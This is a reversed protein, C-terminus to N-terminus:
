TAMRQLDIQIEDRELRAHVRFQASNQFTHIFVVSGRERFERMYRTGALSRLLSDANDPSIAPGEIINAEGRVHVVPPQGTHLSLREAGDSVALILLDTLDDGDNM